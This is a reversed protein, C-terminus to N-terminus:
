LYGCGWRKLARRLGSACGAGDEGSSTSASRAARMQRGRKKEKRTATANTKESKEKKESLTGFVKERSMKGRVRGILGSKEGDFGDDDDDDDEWVSVQQQLSRSAKSLASTPASSSMLFTASTPSCPDLSPNVHRITRTSACTSVPSTNLQHDYPDNTVSAAHANAANSIGLPSYALYSPPAPGAAVAASPSAIMFKSELSDKRLPFPRPRTTRSPPPTSSNIESHPMRKKLTIEAKPTPLPKSQWKPKEQPPSPASSPLDPLPGTKTKSKPSGVNSFISEDNLLSTEPRIATTIFTAKSAPTVTKTIKPKVTVCHKAVTINKEGRYAKEDTLKAAVNDHGHSAVPCKFPPPYLSYKESVQRSNSPLRTNNPETSSASAPPGSSASCAVPRITRESSRLDLSHAM